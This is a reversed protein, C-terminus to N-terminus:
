RDSRVIGRGGNGCADRLRLPFPKNFIHWKPGLVGFDRVRQVSDLQPGRNIVVLQFFFNRQYPKYSANIEPWLLTDSPTM